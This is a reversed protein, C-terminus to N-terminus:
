GVGELKSAGVRVPDSEPCMAHAASACRQAHELARVRTAKTLRLRRSGELERQKHLADCYKKWTDDSM